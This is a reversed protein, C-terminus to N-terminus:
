GLRIPPFYYKPRSPDFGVVWSGSSMTISVFRELGVIITPGIIKFNTIKKKASRLRVVM